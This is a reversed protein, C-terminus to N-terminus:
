PAPRVSRNRFRRVYGVDVLIAAFILVGEIFEVLFPSVDLLTLGNNIIEIFLVGVFTGVLGGKGGSLSTGGIIVAAIVELVVNAGGATPAAADLQGCVVLGAAASLLGAVVFTACIVPAVPIGALRAAERNGGIAYIHRGVVTKRLVFLGVAFLVITLVCGAEFGDFTASGLWTVDGGLDTLTNGGSIYLLLGSGMYFVSLTVIFSNLKLYAVSIGIFLGAVLGSGLAVVLALVGDHVHELLVASWMGSLGVVAGTSLDIEGLLIVATGGIAPLGIISGDNLINRWNGITLFAPAGIGLAVVLAVLAVVIATLPSRSIEGGRRMVARRASATAGLDQDGVGGSLLGGEHLKTAPGSVSGTGRHTM